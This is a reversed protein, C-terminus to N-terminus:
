LGRLQRTAHQRMELNTAPSDRLQELATQKQKRLFQVKALDRPYAKQVGVIDQASLTQNEYRTYCPSNEGSKFMLSDFMYKMISNKDFDGAIYASSVQLSRLNQNVQEQPWFNKYGGLYTYLGPYKGNVDKTYWGAEDKTLQYGPDDEFRFDCGGAPNQHEHEFGLAHGFEHIVIVEWNTPLSRDFSDLNMSAQSPGGGEISRNTSNTGVHSWYGGMRGTDFSIRIEASYTTDSTNWTRYNGASDKFSFSLNAGGKTLWATAADEIQGYLIPNGGNFAVRVSHGPTWRQLTPVLIHFPVIRVGTGASALSRYFIQKSAEIPAPYSEVLFHPTVVEPASQAAGAACLGILAIVCKFIKM